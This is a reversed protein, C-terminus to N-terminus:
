LAAVEDITATIIAAPDYSEIEAQIELARRKYKEVSLVELIAKKLAEPTPTGTKLNIGTGSWEVRDAIDVKDAFHPAAIVLPVGRSLANQFSGYGGNTVFVDSLQLLENFPIWDAVRANEPIIATAPLTAGHKGLAAVVLIDERDSLAELTPMILDSYNRIVTGQSVAVIHRNRTKLVVESWWTPLAQSQMSKPDTRPLGGTFRLTSPADSRPYELSPCCLQLFKDSIEIVANHRYLTTTRAGIHQFIRNLEIQSPALSDVFTKNLSLNRQRGDESNDPLVGHGPPPTDISVALIPLIGVTVVGKPRHGPAGLKFPLGGLFSSEPLLVVPKAPDEVFSLAMVDQLAEFQALIPKIFLEITHLNEKELFSLTRPQQSTFDQAYQDNFAIWGSPVVCKAGTREIQERFTEGTVFTVQYGRALLSRSINQM